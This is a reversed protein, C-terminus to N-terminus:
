SAFNRVSGFKRPSPSNGGAIPRSYDSTLIVLYHEHCRGSSLMVLVYCDCQVELIRTSTVMTVLQSPM